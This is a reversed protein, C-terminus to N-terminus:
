ASPVADAEEVLGLHALVSNMIHKDDDLGGIDLDHELDEWSIFYRVAAHALRREPLPLSEWRDLLRNCDRALARGGALDVFENVRHEQELAALHEAVQVRLDAVASLPENALEEFMERLEAPIGELKAVPRSPPAEPALSTARAIRNGEITLGAERVLLGLASRDPARGFVAVLRRYMVEMDLAGGAALVERRIFEQRGPCRVDDWADLGINRSRDIRIRPESRLLSAVLQQSWAAHSESLSRVLETAQHPTMGQQTGTLQQVVGDIAAAVAEPGGPIDRDVLGVLTEDLRVFPAVLTTSYAGGDALDTHVRARRLLEDFPLPAGAEELIEELLDQYELRREQGSDKAAVRLRGLYDVKESLRLLSALHWHGLWEPVLNRESLLDHIEPVLWQRGAPRDKMVDLAAPVLRDM